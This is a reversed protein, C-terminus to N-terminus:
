LPRLFDSRPKAGTVHPGHESADQTTGSPPPAELFLSVRTNLEQLALETPRAYAAYVRRKFAVLERDMLDPVETTPSYLSIAPHTGCKFVFHRGAQNTLRNIFHERAEEPSVFTVSGDQIFEKYIHFPAVSRGYAMGKTIGETNADNAGVTVGESTGQLKHRGRITADFTGDASGDASSQVNCSGSGSGSGFVGELGAGEPLLVSNTDFLSNAYGSSSSALDVHTAGSSEGESEGQAAHQAHGVQLTM